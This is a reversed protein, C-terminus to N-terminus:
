SLLNDIYNDKNFEFIDEVGEGMGIYKIPFNFKDCIGILVGGKATGDLKTASVSNIDVISSFQKTQEYANQGTSSDIVLMTENPANPFIKKMVTKMKKLENMLGVNNHLRGATDIIVIDINKSKASQLTDYVVASPDSNIKQKVIPIDVKKAWYDLQEIAAARFTDGAGLMVSKGENKFKNALKGITTTKGVGNVGVVMIVYPEKNEKLYDDISINTNEKLIKKIIEKLRVLLEFEELYGNKKIEKELEEIIKISTEMGIDSTVLVEELDELIDKDIKKSKSFINKIKQTINLKTKEIGKDINEKEKRFINKISFKAM